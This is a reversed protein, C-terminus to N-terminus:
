NSQYLHLKEESYRELEKILKFYESIENQLPAIDNNGFGLNLWQDIIHFYLCDEIQALIKILESDLFPMKLYIKRTAESSKAKNYVLYQMWTLRNGPGNVLLPSDSHPNLNSCIISLEQENPYENQLVLNAARAMDHVVVRANSIIIAVKGAVYGYLNVKDKQAKYHVVLFYFIFASVYSLCMKDVIEGIKAAGNFIEPINKFIFEICFITCISIAFLVAIDKRLTKILIRIKMTTPSNKYFLRNQCGLAFM